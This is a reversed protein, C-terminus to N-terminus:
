LARGGIVLRIEGIWEVTHGVEGRVRVRALAGTVDMTMDYAAVDEFTSGIATPSGTAITANAVVLGAAAVATNGGSFILTEGAQFTGVVDRLTLTGTTNTQVVNVCRATAGSTAGTVFTGATLTTSASIFSLEAGPRSFIGDAAYSALATGNMRRGVVSASIRVVEGPDLEFQFLTIFSADTSTGRFQGGRTERQRMLREVVGTQGTGADEGCNRIVIHNQPVSAVWAAGRFDCGDFAVSECAGNCRIEGTNFSTSQVLVGRVTNIAAYAPTTADEVQLNVINQLFTGARLSVMRAGILHLATGSNAEFRVNDFLVGHVEADIVEAIVGALTCATVSGGRWAFDRLPAGAGDVNTDGRLRVGRQCSAVVFGSARVSRGGRLIVGTEFSRVEVDDFSIDDQGVSLVGISAPNASQGDLTLGALGAGAGALTIIQQGLPSRLTTVGRGEGKLRVNAGLTLANIPHSGEPLLVVGGGRAAAAGLAATIITTNSTASASLAGFARVPITDDVIARLTRPVAGPRAGQVTALSADANALDYLPLRQIGSSGEGNITLTYPVGVYIPVVWRGYTVGNADTFSRLQQPNPAPTTLLPDSFVPALVSTGAQYIEVTAGAYGARWVDFEEVRM